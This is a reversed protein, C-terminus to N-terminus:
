GVLIDSGPQDLIEVVQGQTAQFFASVNVHDDAPKHAGGQELERGVMCGQLAKFKSKFIVLMGTAKIFNQALDAAVIRSFM